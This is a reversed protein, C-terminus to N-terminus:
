CQLEKSITNFLNAIAKGVADGNHADDSKLRLLQAEIAKITLEKAITIKMSENM